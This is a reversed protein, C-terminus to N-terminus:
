PSTQARHPLTATIKGDANAQSLQLRQPCATTQTTHMKTHAALANAGLERANMPARRHHKQYLLLCFVRRVIPKELMHQAHLQSQTHAVDIAASFGGCVHKVNTSTDM